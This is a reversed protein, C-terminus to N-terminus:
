QDSSRRQEVRTPYNVWHVQAGRQLAWANVAAIKGQDVKAVPNARTMGNRGSNAACASLGLCSLVALSIALFKM